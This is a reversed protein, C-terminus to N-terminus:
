VAKKFATVIMNLNYTGPSSKFKLVAETTTTSDIEFSTDIIDGQSNTSTDNINSGGSLDWSGHLTGVKKEDESTNYLVYDAKFGTYSNSSNINFTYLDTDTSLNDVDLHLYEVLAGQGLSSSTITFNQALNLGQTIDLSGTIEASGSRIGNWGPATIGTLQSGDGTFSGTFVSGTISSANSFDVTSGSVTLSGTIIADGDITGNWGGVVNTLQSGDGIFETATLSGSTQLDGNVQVQKTNFDGGILPIGVANSIYLKDTQDTATSPGANTGIYVNRSSNKSFKGAQYGIATNSSGLNQILTSYGVSVNNNGTKNSKLSDSGVAVNHLTNSAYYLSNSGISVNHSADLESNGMARFGLAVNDEGASRGLTYNGLAVSQGRTNIGARYGVLTNDKETSNKGASHGIAVNFEATNSTLTDNGIRLGLDGKNEVEINSDLTTLGILNTGSGSVTLSGTIIANGTFEGTWDQQPLNTLQSGDGTFSGTVITANSFDVLSGSATLSGTINADGNLNGDWATTATLGTLQSGDGIFSGTFESATISNKIEVDGTAFDGYILPTGSDNNIYLKNNEVVSATQGAKYGIYVNGQGSTLSEGAQSGVALNFNGSTVSSLAQYGLGTNKSTTNSNILANNGLAVNYFGDSNKLANAGVATNNEGSTTNAGADQGILINFEDQGSTIEFRGTLSLVDGDFTFDSEGQLLGSTGTATLIQNDLNGDISVGSDGSLPITSFTIPDTDYYLKLINGDDELSSSFYVSRFNNDLEQATLPAQKELSYTISM